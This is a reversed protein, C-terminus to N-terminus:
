GGNSRGGYGGYSGGGYSSRPGLVTGAFQGLANGITGYMNM